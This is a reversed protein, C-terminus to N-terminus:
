AKCKRWEAESWPLQAPAERAEVLRANPYAKRVLALRHEIEDDDFTMPAAVDGSVFIPTWGTWKGPSEVWIGRKM